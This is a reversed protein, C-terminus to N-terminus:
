IEFMNGAFCLWKQIVFHPLLKQLAFARGEAFLKLVLKKNVLISLSDKVLARILVIISPVIAGFSSM